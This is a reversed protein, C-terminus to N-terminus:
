TRQGTESLPASKTCGHGSWAESVAATVADLDGHVYVRAPEISSWGAYRQLDFPSMHRAMMSLNSHRLQHLTMGDCGISGRVGVHSADGSWWRQLLQPRLVGGRTNCCLTPADRFGSADRAARWQDVKEQLRAPVPLTRIGAPSKPGAISGDREKVALHVRAYGGAVDSDMLACAESRRLGLLAMLYLAMSRGDLPLEGLRNVLLMLEDPSLAERERTDPKPARMRAMPNSALRGDDVAQQLISKLCVHLSNLTTNSLEGVARVPHSKLWLLADRCHEPRIADMRMGDLATRRLAAVERRDNEVTGPALEGSKARWLRWSEAYAGFAESNPVQGELDSVWERLADQAQTYTGTFRKSKRGDSTTAWLRWKRCKGKPKSKECQEISSGTVKM